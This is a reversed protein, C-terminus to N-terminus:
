FLEKRNWRLVGVDVVIHYLLRAGLVLGEEAVRAHAAALCEVGRAVAEAALVREVEEFLDGGDRARGDLGLGLPGHRVGRAVDHADVLDELAVVPFLELPVPEEPCTFIGIISSKPSTIIVCLLFPRYYLPDNRREHREAISYYM